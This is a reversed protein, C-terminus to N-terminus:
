VENKIYEHECVGNLFNWIIATGAQVSMDKGLHEPHYQVAYLNRDEDEMSAFETKKTYGTTVFGKPMKTVKCTHLMWVPAGDDTFDRYLYSSQDTFDMHTCELEPKSMRKVEGGLDVAMRQMGYCVGLIPIGTNYIRTDVTPAHPGSVYEPSGTIMIARPSLGLIAELPTDGPVLFPRVGLSLLKDYFSKTLSSGCYLVVVNTM